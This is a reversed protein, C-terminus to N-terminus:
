KRRPRRGAPPARPAGEGVDQSPPPAGEGADAPAGGNAHGGNGRWVRHRAVLERLDDHMVLTTRGFHAAPLEGDKILEFLKSRPLGSVQVAVNIPYSIPEPPPM